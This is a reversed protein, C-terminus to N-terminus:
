SAMEWHSLVLDSNGLGEKLIWLFVRQHWVQHLLTFLLKVCEGKEGEISETGLFSLPGIGMSHLFSRSKPFSLFHSCTQACSVQKSHSRSYEGEHAVKQHVRM